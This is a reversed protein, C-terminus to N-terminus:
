AAAELPAARAGATVTDVRERISELLDRYSACFAEVGERELEKTVEALLPAAALVREAAEDDLPATLGPEGHDAYALLTPEPVTLITDPLALQELYMVDRYEPNKTATSAWLPRQVTAGREALWDWRPGAFRERFRDYAVRGNAIGLRGRLGSHAPLRIDAKADVRSVFFSAVSRIGALPEGRHARRELGRLYAEITQEYREVAFLLTVNVNVGLVTLEEIAEMGEATAPVKIMANAADLRHWLDLAQAITADADYAVDPTVELSVFGHEGHTARHIPRLKAAARRVDEVALAAFLDRPDSRGAGLERRLQADYRDSGGIAKAFITPNSTVGGVAFDGMLEDLRGDEILERSLTDLWIAVGRETM